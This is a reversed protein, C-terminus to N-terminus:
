MLRLCCGQRDKFVFPLWLCIGSTPEARQAALRMLSALPEEGKAKGRYLLVVVVFALEAEAAMLLHSLGLTGSPHTMWEKLCESLSRRLATSHGESMISWIPPQAVAPTPCANPSKVPGSPQRMDHPRAQASHLLNHFIVGM